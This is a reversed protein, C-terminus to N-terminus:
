KSLRRRREKEMKFFDSIYVILEGETCEHITRRTEGTYFKRGRVENRRSKYVRKSYGGGDQQFDEVAFRIARQLDKTGPPDKSDLWVDDNRLM